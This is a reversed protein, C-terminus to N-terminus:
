VADGGSGVAVPGGAQGGGDADGVVVDLGDDLAGDLGGGGGGGLAGDREVRKGPDIRGLVQEVEPGGLVVEVGAVRHDVGRAVAALDAPQPTGSRARSA